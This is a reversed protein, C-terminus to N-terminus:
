NTPRDCSLYLGGACDLADEATGVPSGTPLFNDEDDDHSARYIAFGWLHASGNYRLRCLKTTTGDSRRADIYAFDARWRVDIRALTPWRNGAYSNLRAALSTKTSQLPAKM